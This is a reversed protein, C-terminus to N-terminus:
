CAAAGANGPPNASSMAAGLWRLIPVDAGVLNLAERTVPRRIAGNRTWSVIRRGRDPDGPSHEAQGDLM